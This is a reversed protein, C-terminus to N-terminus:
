YAPDCVAPIGCRGLINAAEEGTVYKATTGHSSWQDGSKLPKLPEWDKALLTAALTKVAQWNQNVLQESRNELKRQVAEVNEDSMYENSLKCMLKRAERWDPSPIIEETYDPPPAHSSEDCFHKQAKFGAFTAVIVREM